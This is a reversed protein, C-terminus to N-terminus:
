RTPSFVFRRAAFPGPLEALRGAVVRPCAVGQLLETQTASTARRGQGALTHKCWPVVCRLGTRFDRHPAMDLIKAVVPLDDRVDSETQKRDDDDKYLRRVQVSHRIGHRAKNAWIAAKIRGLRIGHVPKQAALRLGEIMM